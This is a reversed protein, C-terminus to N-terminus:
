LMRNILEKMKEGRYGLAGGITFPVKIGKREFGKIPPHLRFYPKIKKNNLTFCKKADSRGKYEEGRKNLLEQFIEESVEGYTIHDKAINLMGRVTPSDEYVSCYNKRYLRLMNLTEKVDRGLTVNGRIRIAAIKKSEM